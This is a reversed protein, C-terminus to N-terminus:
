GLSEEQLLARLRDALGAESPHEPLHYWDIGREALAEGTTPGIALVIQRPQLPQQHLFAQVNLPSTFAAIDVADPVRIDPDIVNDYVPISVADIQRGLLGEISRRSQAARIFLVRQHRVAPLLARATAEPNGQGVFKVELGLARCQEATGPGMVAVSRNLVARQASPLQEVFFAAGRPSYFFLWDSKPVYEFPLAVFRLLSRDILTLHWQRSLARLPSELSLGRSIFFTKGM